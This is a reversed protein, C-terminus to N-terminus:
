SSVADPVFVILSRTAGSYPLTYTVGRKKHLSLAELITDARELEEHWKPGKMCIVQVGPQAFRATMQLFGSIETVARSTIHTAGLNSPLQQEDEARCSLVAVGTLELTRIIHKLFSVRKLRPEVLTVEMEPSAAKLVLGPFGAGTGIDLLHVGPGEILPLLTLSDLFHNEIIQRDDAGMSILNIKRGWKKLEQFYAAMREIAPEDVEIGLQRLGNDMLERFTEDRM